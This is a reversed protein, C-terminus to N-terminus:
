TIAKWKNNNKGIYYILCKHYSIGILSNGLNLIVLVEERRDLSEKNIMMGMIRIKLYILIPRRLGVWRIRYKSNLMVGGLIDVRYSFTRLLVEERMIIRRKSDITTIGIWKLTRILTKRLWHDWVRSHSLRRERFTWHVTISWRSRITVTWSRTPKNRTRSLPGRMPSTSRSRSTRM